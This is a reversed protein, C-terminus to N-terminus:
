RPMVASTTSRAVSHSGDPAPKYRGPLATRASRSSPMPDATAGTRVRDPPLAEEVVATAEQGVDVDVPKPVTDASAERDMARRQVLHKELGGSVHRDSEASDTVSRSSPSAGRTIRESPEVPM